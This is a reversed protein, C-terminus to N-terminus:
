VYYESINMKFILKDNTNMLGKIEITWFHVGKLLPPLLIKKQGRVKARKSIFLFILVDRTM